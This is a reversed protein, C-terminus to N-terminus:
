KEICQREQQERGGVTSSDKSDGNGGGQGERGRLRGGGRGIKRRKAGNQTPQLRAPLWQMASPSFGECGWQDGRRWHDILARNGSSFYKEAFIGNDEACIARCQRDRVGLWIALRHSKTMIENFCAAVNPRSTTKCESAAAKWEWGRSLHSCHCWSM